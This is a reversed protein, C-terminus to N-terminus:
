YDIQFNGGNEIKSIFSRSEATRDLDMIITPVDKIDTTIAFGFLVLQIIPAIFIIFLLRKDRFSQIFEKIILHKIRVFM